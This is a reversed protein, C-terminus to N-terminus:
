KEAKFNKRKKTHVILLLLAMYASFSCTGLNGLIKLQKFGKIVNKNLLKEVPSGM